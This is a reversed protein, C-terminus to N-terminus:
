LGGFHERWFLEAFGNVNTDAEFLVDQPGRRLQWFESTALNLREMANSAVGATYLTVKRQGYKTNIEVYDGSPVVGKFEILQGHTQNHIRATDFEGHLRIVTSTVVSGSNEVTQLSSYAGSEWPHELPFTFGGDEAQLRVYNDSLRRWFPYPVFFELDYVMANRGVKRVEQPSDEPYCEVELTDLGPRHLQLVGPRPDEDPGPPSVFLARSLREREKWFTNQSPTLLAVQLPLVRPGYRVDSATVGIQRPGRRSQVELGVSSLGKANLLMLPGDVANPDLVLKDNNPSFYELRYDSLIAM